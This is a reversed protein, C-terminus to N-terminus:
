PVPDRAEIFKPPLGLALDACNFLKAFQQQPVPDTPHFKGNERWDRLWLKHTPFASVAEFGISLHATGLSNARIEIKLRHWIDVCDRPGGLSQFFSEVTEEPHGFFTPRWLFLGPEPEHPNLDQQNAAFEAEQAPPLCAIRGYAIKESGGAQDISLVPGATWESGDYLGHIVGRTRLRCHTDDETGGNESFALNTLLVLTRTRLTRRLGHDGKIKAIYAQAVFQANLRGGDFPVDFDYYTPMAAREKARPM